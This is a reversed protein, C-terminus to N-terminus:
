WVKQPPTGAAGRADAGNLAQKRACRIHALRDVAERLGGALPSTGGLDDAKHRRQGTTATIPPIAHAHPRERAPLAVRSHMPAHGIHRTVALLVLVFELLELLRNGIEVARRRTEERGPGLPADEIEIRCQGVPEIVVEGLNGIAIELDTVDHSGAALRKERMHLALGTCHAGFRDIEIQLALAALPKGHPEQM